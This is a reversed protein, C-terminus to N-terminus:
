RATAATATSWPSAPPRSRSRRGSTRGSRARAGTRSTAASGSSAMPITASWTRGSWTDHSPGRKRRAARPTSSSRPSWDARARRGPSEGSDHGAGKTPHGFDPNRRRGEASCRSCASRPISARAPRDGHQQHGLVANFARRRAAAPRDRDAAPVLRRRRRRGPLDGTMVGGIQVMIVPSQITLYAGAWLM